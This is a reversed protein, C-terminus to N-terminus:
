NQYEVSLGNTNEISGHVLAHKGLPAYLDIYRLFLAARRVDESTRGTAVLTASREQNDLIIVGANQVANCNNTGLFNAVMSNTCPTGILILNHAKEPVESELIVPPLVARLGKLGYAIDNAAFTEDPSHNNGLVIYVDNYYNNKIFPFPYDALTVKASDLVIHGTIVPGFSSVFITALLLFVVVITVESKVEM